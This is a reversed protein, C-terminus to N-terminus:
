RRLIWKRSGRRSLLTGLYPAAMFIIIIAQIAWFLYEGTGSITSGGVVLVAFFFASFIAAVPNNAAVLAVAIGAFGEGGFWGEVWEIFVCAGPGCAHGSGLVDGAGVLGALGGGIMMAMIKTRRPNIGKAEAPDKGLGTARINYGLTTRYLFYLAGAAVVIAIVVMSSTTFYPLSPIMAGSPITAFNTISISPFKLVVVSFLLLSTLSKAVYNLMITTVISSANRYAELVGPIFGWLAGAFVAVIVAAVPWLFTPMPVFSVLLAAAIGGLYIQGNAGVNWIGARAPILFALATLTYIGTYTLVSSQGTQTTLAYNAVGTFLTIPNFGFLLVLFSSAIIGLALAELQPVTGK